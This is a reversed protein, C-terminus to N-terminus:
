ISLQTISPQWSLQNILMWNRSRSVHLWLSNCIIGSQRSGIAQNSGNEPLYSLGLLFGQATCNNRRSQHMVITVIPRTELKPSKFFFEGKWIFISMFMSPHLISHPLSTPSALSTLTSQAPAWSSVWLCPLSLLCAPPMHIRFFPHSAAPAEGGRWSRPGLACSPTAWFDSRFSLGSFYLTPTLHLAFDVCAVPPTSSLGIVSAARQPEVWKQHVFFLCRPRSTTQSFPWLALSFLTQSAALMPSLAVPLSTSLGKPVCSVKEKSGPFFHREQEEM